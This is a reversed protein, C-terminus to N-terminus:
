LQTASPDSEFTGAPDLTGKVARMLELSGTDAGRGRGGSDRAAGAPVDLIAVQGDPPLGALLTPLQDQELEVYSIGRAARAVVTAGCSDALALLAALRSSATVVRVLAREASRQGARQRAWLGSDDDIVEINGLGATAIARAARRAASQPREGAAQALLGGRGGRWALDLAQLEPMASRLRRAADVLASPDSSTGLATATADPLPHLRVCVALIVGLAGFSGTYLSALDYGAVSRQIRGGARAVSGDGLAVVIGTLQERAGGFRHSIPGADASAIVGGLTAEQRGDFGLPPDLALLQGAAAIETRARALPMGASIVAVRDDPDHEIPQRLGTTRLVLTPSVQPGPDIWALKTGAGVIRVHHAAATAARLTASVEEFSTPTVSESV